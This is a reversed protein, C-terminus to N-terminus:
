GAIAPTSRCRAELDQRYKSSSSMTSEMTLSSQFRAFSFFDVDAREFTSSFSYRGIFRCEGVGVGRGVTEQENEHVESV